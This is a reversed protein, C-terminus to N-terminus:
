CFFFRDQERIAPHEELRRKIWQQEERNAVAIIIQANDDSAITQCDEIPIGYIHKGIKKQNNCVWKISSATQRILKVIKKAKRGAGWVILKKSKDYDLELFYHCKLALFNNDAYHDMTRSSRDPYDRWLHLVKSAPLPKLKARYMKFCLDYDEPYVSNNFAGINDLDQKWLMWCPSPVVCEKYIGQWIMADEILANLWRQYRQYGDGIMEEPFYRVKGLAIHGPGANLLQSQLTALKDAVMLDDGDMRTIINKATRSYAMQLASIVGEGVNDLVRIRHDKAAYKDLLVKTNDTSHDDVVILEWNNFTQKLISDLCAEIHNEENRVPM